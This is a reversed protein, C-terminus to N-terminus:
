SRSTPFFGVPQSKREARKVRRFLLLRRDGGADVLQMFDWGDKAADTLAAALKEAVEGLPMEDTKFEFERPGLGLSPVAMTAAAAGPEPEEDPEEEPEDPEPIEEARM